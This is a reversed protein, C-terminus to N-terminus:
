EKPEPPSSLEEEWRKFFEELKPRSMFEHLIQETEHIYRRHIDSDFIAAALTHADTKKLTVMYWIHGDPTRARKEITMFESLEFAGQYIFTSLALEARNTLSEALLDDGYIDLLNFEMGPWTTSVIQVFLDQQAEFKALECSANLTSLKGRGMGMLVGADESVMLVWEHVPNGGTEEIPPLKNQQAGATYGILSCLALVAFSKRLFLM